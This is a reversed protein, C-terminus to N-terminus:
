AGSSRKAASLYPKVEIFNSLGRVGSVNYVSSQAELRQYQWEVSGELTVVRAAAREASIKEFYSSLRGTLTVIGDKASVCIHLARVSPSLCTMAWLFDPTSCGNSGTLHAAHSFAPQVIEYHPGHM